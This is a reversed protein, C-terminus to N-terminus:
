AAGEYARSMWDTEGERVRRAKRRYEELLASDEEAVVAAIDEHGQHLELICPWCLKQGAYKIGKKQPIKQDCAVCRRPKGNAPKGRERKM